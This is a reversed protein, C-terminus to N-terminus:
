NNELSNLLGLIERNREDLRNYLRLTKQNLPILHVNTEYKPGSIPVTKVDVLKKFDELYNSYTYMDTSLWSIHKSCNWVQCSFSDKNKTVYKTMYLTLAKTNNSNIKKIDLASAPNFSADRAFVGSKNQLLIWYKLYKKIDISKNTILHFHINDPFVTNKKQREAVWLYQFGPKRKKLNDLFKRLVDVAVKDEVKNMFTLTLFYLHKNVQSWALIKKRIKTKTHKSMQRLKIVELELKEVKPTVGLLGFTIEMLKDMTVGYAELIREKEPEIEQKLRKPKSKKRDLSSGGFEKMNGNIDYNFDKIEISYGYTSKLRM